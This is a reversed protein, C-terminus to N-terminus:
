PHLERWRAIGAGSLGGVTGGLLAAIVVLGWDFENVRRAGEYNLEGNQAVNKLIKAQLATADGKEGDLSVAILKRITADLEPVAGRAHAIGDIIKHISAYIIKAHQLTTGAVQFEKPGSDEEEYTPYEM